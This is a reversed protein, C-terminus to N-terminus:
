FMNGYVGWAVYLVTALIGAMILTNLWERFEKLM